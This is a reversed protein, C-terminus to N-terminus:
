SLSCSRLFVQVSEASSTFINGHVDARFGDAIGPNIVAFIRSDKVRRGDVVDFAVIHHNGNPDFAVSTDAVYLVREDPSFGIGNPEVVEDTVITLDDTRPDFRFVYCDGLESESKYGEHDSLIGYPPDTFWITGDSKVVLDNPSNL